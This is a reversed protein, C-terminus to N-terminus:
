RARTSPGVRNARRRLRPLLLLAGGAAAMVALIPTSGAWWEGTHVSTPSAAALTAPAPVSPEATPPVTTPASGGGSAAVAPAPANLTGTSTASGLDLLIGGQVGKLLDITAGDAQATSGTTTASGLDIVTELPTGALLDQSQGPSLDITQNFGPINLSVVAVSAHDSPTWASGNFVSTASAPALQIEVLPAPTGGTLNPGISGVGPLIRIDATQGASTATASGDASRISATAPGLAVTVTEPAPTQAVVAQLNNVAQQVGQTLQGLPTSGLPSGNVQNLVQTLGNALQSGGAQIVQNLVGALNVTVGAIGGSASGQPNGGPVATSASGCAVGLTVSLPTGAPTSGTLPSCAQPTTQSTGAGSSSAKADGLLAPTLAGTGEATASPTSSDVSVSAKGGTLETGFLNVVLGSASASATYATAAAAGAVPAPGAAVMGLVVLAAGGSAASRILTGRHM